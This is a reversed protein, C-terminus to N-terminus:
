ENMTQDADNGLKQQLAWNKLNTGSLTQLYGSFHM